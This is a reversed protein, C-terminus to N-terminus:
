RRKIEEKGAPRPMVTPPATEVPQVQREGEEVVMVERPPALLEVEPQRGRRSLLLGTAAGLALGAGALVFPNRMLAQADMGGGGAGSRMGQLRGRAGEGAASARERAQDKVGGLRRRMSGLKEGLGGGKNEQRPEIHTDAGGTQSAIMTWVLGLMTFTIPLPNRTVSERLNQVYENGPGHRLYDLGTEMLEGPSLRTQLQSITSDMEARTRELQAEIDHLDGSERNM